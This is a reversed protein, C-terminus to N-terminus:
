RKKSIELALIIILRFTYYASMTYYFLLLNFLFNLVLSHKLMMELKM